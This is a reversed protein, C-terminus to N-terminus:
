CLLVIFVLLMLLALVALVVRVAFPRGDLAFWRSRRTVGGGGGAVAFPEASPVSVTSSPDFLPVASPIRNSEGSGPQLAIDDLQVATEYSPSCQEEFWWTKGLKPTDSNDVCNAEVQRKTEQQRGALSPYANIKTYDLECKMSPDYLHTGVPLKIRRCKTGGFNGGDSLNSMLNNPMLESIDELMGPLIGRGSTFGGRCGTASGFSNNGLMPVQGTPINRLYVMRDKGGCGGGSSAGCKGLNVFYNSGLSKDKGMYFQGTTTGSPMVVATEVAKAHGASDRVFTSGDPFLEGPSVNLVAEGSIPYALAYNQLNTLERDLLTSPKPVRSITGYLSPSQMANIANYKSTNNEARYPDTESM